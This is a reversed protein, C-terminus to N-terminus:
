NGRAFLYDEYGSFYVPASPKKHAYLIEHAAGRGQPKLSPRRTSHICRISRFCAPVGWVMKLQTGLLNIDAHKGILEALNASFSVGMECSM